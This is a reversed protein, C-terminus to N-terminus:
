ATRTLALKQHWGYPRQDELRVSVACSTGRMHTSSRAPDELWNTESVDERVSGCTRRLSGRNKSPANVGQHCNATTVARPIAVHASGPESTAHTVAPVPAVYEDLDIKALAPWVRAWKMARGKTPHRFHCLPRSMMATRRLVRMPNTRRRRHQQSGGPVANGTMGSTNATSRLM